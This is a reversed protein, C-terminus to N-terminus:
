GLGRIVNQLTAWVQAPLQEEHSNTLTPLSPLMELIIAVVEQANHLRDVRVSRLVAPHDLSERPEQHLTPDFGVLAEGRPEEQCQLLLQQSVSSPHISHVVEFVAEANHSM